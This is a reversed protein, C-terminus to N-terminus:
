GSQGFTEMTRGLQEMGDLIAQSQSVLRRCIFVRSELDKRVCPVVDELMRVVGVRVTGLAQELEVWFRRFSKVALHTQKARNFMALDAAAQAPGLLSNNPDLQCATKLAEVLAQRHQLEYTTHELLTSIQQKSHGTAALKITDLLASMTTVQYVLSNLHLIRDSYVKHQRRAFMMAPSSLLSDKMHRGQDSAAILKQSQHPFNANNSIQTASSVSLSPPDPEIDVFWSAATVATKAIKAPFPSMGGIINAPHTRHSCNADQQKDKNDHAVAQYPSPVLLGLFVRRWLSPDLSPPLPRQLVLHLAFVLMYVGCNHGDTQQACDGHCKCAWHSQISNRDSTATATTERKNTDDMSEDVSAIPSGDTLILFENVFAHAAAKQVSRNVESGAASDALHITQEPLDLWALVWHNAGKGQGKAHVVNMPLLVIRLKPYNRHLHKKTVEYLRTGRKSQISLSNITSEIELLASDVIYVSPDLANLLVGLTKITTGLLQAGNDQLNAIEIHGIALKSESPPPPSSSALTCNEIDNKSDANTTQVFSIKHRPAEHAGGSTKLQDEQDRVHKQAQNRHEDEDAALHVRKPSPDDRDKVRYDIQGQSRDEYEDEDEFATMHARKSTPMYSDSCDAFHGQGRGLECEDESIQMHIFTTEKEKLQTSDVTTPKHQSDFRLTLGALSADSDHSPSSNYKVGSLDEEEENYGQGSKGEGCDKTVVEFESDSAENDETRAKRLVSKTIRHRRVSVGASDALRSLGPVQQKIQNQGSKASTESITPTEIQTDLLAGLDPLFTGTDSHGSKDSYGHISFTYHRPQEPSSVPSQSRPSSQSESEPLPQFLGSDANIDNDVLDDEENDTPEQSRKAADDVVKSMQRLLPATLVLKYPVRRATAVCFVATDTTLREGDIGDKGVNSTTSITADLIRAYLDLFPVSTPAATTSIDSDVNSM